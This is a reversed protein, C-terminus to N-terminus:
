DLTTQGLELVVDFRTSVHIPIDHKRDNADDDTGAQRWTHRRCFLEGRSVGLLAGIGSVM